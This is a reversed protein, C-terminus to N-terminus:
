LPVEVRASSPLASKMGPQSIRPWQADVMAIDIADVPKLVGGSLRENWQRRADRQVLSSILSEPEQM